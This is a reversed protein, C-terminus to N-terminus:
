EELSAFIEQDLAEMQEPGYLPPGLLRKQQYVENNIWQIEERTTRFGVMQITLTKAEAEARPVPQQHSCCITQKCEKQGVEEAHTFMRQLICPCQPGDSKWRPCEDLFLESDLHCEAEWVPIGEEQAWKKATAM